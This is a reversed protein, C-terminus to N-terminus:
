GWYNIRYLRLLRWVQSKDNCALLDSLVTDRGALDMIELLADVHKEKNNSALLVIFHITEGTKAVIGKKFIGFSMAVGRAGKEPETHPLALQNRFVIYPPIESLEQKLATLYRPEIMKEEILPQSLRELAEHWSVENEEIILGNKPMLQDFHNAENDIVANESTNDKLLKLIEFFLKEKDDVEAQQLVNAVIKEALSTEDLGIVTENMVRQRLQMKGKDTLFDKVLFYRRDIDLPVSSFILDVEVDQAYFERLSMTSVFDVEPFVGKLTQEMLLSVSIGNTCVIVATPDKKRLLSSNNELLHSGFFLALYFIETDSISKKFFDELPRISKKVLYFISSVERSQQRTIDVESLHMSYKIRYYAPRMHLMIQKLLENKDDISVQAVKEFRDIMNLVALQMTEFQGKSLVDVQTLTTSLFLLTFYIIENIEKKYKPFFVEKVVKYEKTEQLEVYDLEFDYNIKKGRIIRRDLLLTLVPLTNVKDDSYRLNLRKELVSVKRKYEALQPQTIDGYQKLLAENNIFQNVTNVTDTLLQRRNWEEGKIRYGKSRLYELCLQYNALHPEVEKLDRAVTNKSVNLEVIFHNMSLPETKSLLMLILLQVREEPLLYTDKTIQSNNQVFEEATEKTIIFHGNTTRTVPDLNLEDLYENVKQLSYSLQSRTLDHRKKLSTSTEDPNNLIEIFLQNTRADLEM